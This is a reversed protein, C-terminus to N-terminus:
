RSVPVLRSIATGGAMSMRPRDAGTVARGPPRWWDATTYASVMSAGANSPLYPLLHDQWAADAAGYAAVALRRGRDVGHPSLDAVRLLARVARVPDGKHLARDATLLGAAPEDLGIVAEALHWARREPDDTFLDVPSWGAAASVASTASPEAIGM